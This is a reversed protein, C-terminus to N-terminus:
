TEPPPLHAALEAWVSRADTHQTVQSLIPEPSALQGWGEALLAEIARLYGTRAGEALDRALEARCEEGDIVVFV